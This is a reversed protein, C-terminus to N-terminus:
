SLEVHKNPKDVSKKLVKFYFAHMDNFESEFCDSRIDGKFEIVVSVSPHIKARKRYISVSFEGMSDYYTDNVKVVSHAFNHLGTKIEACAMQCPIGVATLVDFLAAAFVSCTDIQADKRSSGLKADQILQSIAM